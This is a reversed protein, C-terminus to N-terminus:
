KSADVDGSSTVHDIADDADIVGLLVKLDREEASTALVVRGGRDKVERLLDGARDFATLHDHLARYHEGHVGSAEPDDHGLLDPVLKDSGMGIRHHIWAMPVTHGRDRLARWWAITHLYNSDVLTGDVDFLVGPRDM